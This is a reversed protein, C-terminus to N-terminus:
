IKRRIYLKCNECFSSKDSERKKHNDNHFISQKQQEFNNQKTYNICDACKIEYNIELLCEHSRNEPNNIKKVKNCKAKTGTCFQHQNSKIHRIFKPKEYKTWCTWCDKTTLKMMKIQTLVLKKNKNDNPKEALTANQM